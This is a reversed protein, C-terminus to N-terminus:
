RHAPVHPMRKSKIPRLGAHTRYSPTIRRDLRIRLRQQENFGGWIGFPEHSLSYDLCEKAVMCGSCIRMADAEIQLISHKAERTMSQSFEPFWWETPKGNCAGGVPPAAGTENLFKPLDAV